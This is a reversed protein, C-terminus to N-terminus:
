RGPLPNKVLGDLASIERNFGDDNAQDVSSMTAAADIIRQANAALDNIFGSMEKQLETAYAALEAGVAFGPNDKAAALSSEFYSATRVLAEAAIVALEAGTSKVADPAIYLDDDSM